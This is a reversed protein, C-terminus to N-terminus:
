PGYDIDRLEIGLRSIRYNMNSRSLGLRRAARAQVGGAERLATVIVEREYRLLWEQLTTGPPPLAPLRNVTDHESLEDDLPLPLSTIEAGRNLIVARELLHELQRVNGPWDYAMLQEVVGRALKPVSRNNKEAVRHVFHDVLLPIDDKRERLPPVRIAVVNLRYFLDERFRKDRVERRLDKNTAAVVRVDVRVPERGGVRHIEGSELVRLLKVQM